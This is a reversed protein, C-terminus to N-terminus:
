GNKLGIRMSLQLIVVVETLPPRNRTCISLSGFQFNEGFLGVIIEVNLFYATVPEM